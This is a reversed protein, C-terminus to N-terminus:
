YRHPLWSQKCGVDSGIWLYEFFSAELKEFDLDCITGEQFAGFKLEPQLFQFHSFCVPEVLLYSLM